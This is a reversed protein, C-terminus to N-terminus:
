WERRCTVSPDLPRAKSRACCHFHTCRRLNYDHLAEANAPNRDLERLSTQAAALFGGLAVLPQKARQDLATDITEVVAQNAGPARPLPAPRKESVVAIQSCGLLSFAAISTFLLRQTRMKASFVLRVRVLPLNLGFLIM